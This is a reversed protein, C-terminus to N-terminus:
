TQQKVSTQPTVEQLWGVGVASAIAIGSGHSLSVEIDDLGRENALQQAMQTLEVRVAGGPMRVIEMDRWEPTIAVPQLAKLVAEKACFRAALGPALLNPEADYGGCSEVEQPTFLRDLYRRGHRRISEAISEISQIDTGVRLVLRRGERDATGLHHPATTETSIM